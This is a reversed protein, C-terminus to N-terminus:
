REGEARMQFTASVTSTAEMAFGTPTEHWPRRRHFFGRFAEEINMYRDKRRRERTEEKEEKM